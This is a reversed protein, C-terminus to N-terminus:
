WRGAGDGESAAVDLQWAHVLSPRSNGRSTEKERRSAPSLFNRVPTSRSMVSRLCTSPSNRWARSVASAAVWALDANRALIDWSSRVGMFAIIPKVLSTMRRECSTRGCRCYSFRSFIKILASCRKVRMLSM